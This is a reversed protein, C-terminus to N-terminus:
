GFHLILINHRISQSYNEKTQFYFMKEEILAVVNFYGIIVDQMANNMTLAYVKNIASKGFLQMNTGIIRTKTIRIQYHIRTYKAAQPIKKYPYTLPLKTHQQEKKKKM